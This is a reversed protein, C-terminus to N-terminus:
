EKAGSAFFEVRNINMKPDTKKLDIIEDNSFPTIFKITDFIKLESITLLVAEKTNNYINESLEKKSKLEIDIHNMNVAKIIIDISSHISNDLYNGRNGSPGKKLIKLLSPVDNKPIPIIVPVFYKRDKSLWYVLVLSNNQDIESETYWLNRWIDRTFAETYDMETKFNVPIIRVSKVWEFETLTNVIAGIMLLEDADGLRKNQANITLIVEKKESNIEANLFSIGLPICSRLGKDKQPLSLEGLLSLISQPKPITDPAFNDIKMTTSVPILYMGQPESYYLVVVQESPNDCSLAFLVFLATFFLKIINFIKKM